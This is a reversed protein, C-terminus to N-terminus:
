KIQQQLEKDNVDNCQGTKKNCMKNENFCAIIKDQTCKDKKKAVKKAKPKPKPKQKAAAKAKPTVKPKPKDQKKPRGRKKKPKEDYVKNCRGTKENCKKGQSKCHQKKAEDCVAGGSQIYNQM